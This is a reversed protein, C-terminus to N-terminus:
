ADNVALTLCLHRRPRVLGESHRGIGSSRAGVNAAIQLYQNARDLNM